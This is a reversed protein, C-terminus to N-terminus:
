WQIQNISQYDRICQIHLTKTTVFISEQGSTVPNWSRWSCSPFGCCLEASTGYKKGRIWWAKESGGIKKNGWVDWVARRTQQGKWGREVEFRGCRLGFDQSQSLSLKTTKGAPLDCTWSMRGPPEFHFLFSCLFTRCVRFGGVQMTSSESRSCWCQMPNGSLNPFDLRFIHCVAMGNWHWSLSAWKSLVKKRRIRTIRKTLQTVLNVLVPVPSDRWFWISSSRLWM